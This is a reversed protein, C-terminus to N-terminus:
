ICKVRRKGKEEGRRGDWAKVKVKGGQAWDKM